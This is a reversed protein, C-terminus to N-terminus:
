LSLLPALGFVRGEPTDKPRLSEKRLLKLGDAFPQGLGEFGVRDPGERRQHLGMLKRELLTFAATFVLLGVLLGLGLGVVTLLHGFGIEESLLGLSGLGLMKRGGRRRRTSALMAIAEASDGSTPPTETCCRRIVEELEAARKAAARSRIDFVPTWDKDPGRGVCGFLERSLLEQLAVEYAQQLAARDTGESASRLQENAIQVAEWAQDAGKRSPPLIDNLDRPWALGRCQMLRSFHQARCDKAEKLLHEHVVRLARCDVGGCGKGCNTFANRMEEVVVEPPVSNSTSSAEESALVVALMSHPDLPLAYALLLIYALVALGVLGLGSRGVNVLELWRQGRGLLNSLGAPGV